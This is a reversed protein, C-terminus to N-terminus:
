LYLGTPNMVSIGIAGAIGGSMVRTMFGPKKNPDGNNTLYAIGDRVPEFVVLALGTYSVQSLAICDTM